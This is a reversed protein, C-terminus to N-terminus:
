KKLQFRLFKTNNQTQESEFVLEITDGSNPVRKKIETEEKGMVICLNGDEDKFLFTKGYKEAEKKSLRILKKIDGKRLAPKPPPVPKPLERLTGFGYGSNTKGGVGNQALANELMTWVYDLWKKGRSSIKGADDKDECSLAVLFNGQVSLFAVPVPLDYETPAVEGDSNYYDGHHPTMIDDCLCGKELSKPFILADYFQIRGANNTNGFIKIYDPNERANDDNKNNKTALFDAFWHACLGKLASAPIYPTGYTHHLTLGAELINTGGLGIIMRQDIHFERVDCNEIVFKKWRDFATEYIEKVNKTANKARKFLATRENKDSSEQVKLYRSLLLEAHDGDKMDKLLDRISQIM